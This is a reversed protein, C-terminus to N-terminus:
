PIPEEDVLCIATRRRTQIERQMPLLASRVQMDLAWAYLRQYAEQQAAPVETRLRQLVEITTPTCVEAVPVMADALGAARMDRRTTDLHIFAVQRQYAVCAQLLREPVNDAAMYGSVEPRPVAEPLPRFLPWNTAM